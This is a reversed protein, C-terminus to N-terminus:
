INMSVSWPKCAWEKMRECCLHKNFIWQSVSGSSQVTDLCGLSAALFSYTLDNNEWENMWWDGLWQNERRLCQEHETYQLNLLVNAKSSRFAEIQSYSPSLCLDEPWLKSYDLILLQSNGASCYLPFATILISTAPLLTLGMWLFAHQTCDASTGFDWFGEGCDWLSRFGGPSPHLNVALSLWTFWAVTPAPNPSM